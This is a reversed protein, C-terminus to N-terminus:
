FKERTELMQRFARKLLSSVHINPTICPNDMRTSFYKRYTKSGYVDLIFRCVGQSRSKGANCHIYIDYDKSQLHCDIFNAMVMAQGFTMSDDDAFNINLVNDSTPVPHMDSVGPDGISIVIARDADAEKRITDAVTRFDNLSYVYLKM